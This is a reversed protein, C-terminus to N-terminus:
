AEVPSATSLLDDFFAYTFEQTIATLTDALRDTTAVAQAIAARDVASQIAFKGILGHGKAAAAIRAEDDAWASLNECLTDLDFQPADILTRPLTVLMVEGLSVREITPGASEFSRRDIRLTDTVFAPLRDPPPLRREPFYPTGIQKALLPAPTARHYAAVQTRFAPQPKVVINQVDPAMIESPANKAFDMRIETLLEEIPESPSQVPIGASATNLAIQVELLPEALALKSTAAAPELLGMALQPQGSSEFLHTLNKRYREDEPESAVALEFHRQALDTRGIRAYAVAMGNHAEAANEGIRLAVRFASIADAHQKRALLLQGRELSSETDAVTGPSDINRIDLVPRSGTACGAVFPMLSASLALGLVNMTRKM